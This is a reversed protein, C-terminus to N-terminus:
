APKARREALRREVGLWQRFHWGARRRENKPNRSYFPRVELEYGLLGAGSLQSLILETVTSSSCSIRCYRAFRGMRGEVLDFSPADNPQRINFWALLKKRLRAGIGAGNCSNLIHTGIIGGVLGRVDEVSARAPLNGIYIDLV